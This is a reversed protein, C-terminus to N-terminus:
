SIALNRLALVGDTSSKGMHLYGGRNASNTVTISNPAGVDTRTWTIDTPTVTVRFHMWTGATPAATTVTSGLQSGATSGDVHAYLQLQGNARLIAHYGNGKGYQHEYYQDTARGFALTLNTTTDAPLTDWRADFDVTYTDSPNPVAGLSLFHRGTRGLTLINPAAWGPAYSAGSQDLTLEGPAIAQTWWSDTLSRPTSTNVYGYGSTVFGSVGRAVNYGIDYRRHLPYMWVSKGTATCRTVEADPMPTLVDGDFYPIVIYDVGRSVLSDVAAQTIEAKNGFYGFVKYGASKAEAIRPSSHFAKIITSDKLGYREIMAVMPTYAADAKAEACMVVMGGYRRLIEEFLVVKPGNTGSWAAGTQTMKSIQTSRLVSSPQSAIAGTANTTRDWTADHNVVLVGDLTLHVSVEMCRAGHQIAWEFAEMSNEPIIDGSGRHAIYYPASGRETEWSSVTVRNAIADAGPPGVVIATGNATPVPAIDSLQLDGGEPAQIAYSRGGGVTFQENITYTWGTPNIDLDDTAPVTFDVSGNEDLNVKRAVPVIIRDSQAALLVKPSATVSIYGAMPTGLLDVWTGRIRCTGWEPAPSTM